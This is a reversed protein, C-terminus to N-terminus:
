RVGQRAHWIIWNEWHIYISTGARINGLEALTQATQQTTLSNFLLQNLPRELADNGISCFMQM